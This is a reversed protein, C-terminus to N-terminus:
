LGLAHLLLHAFQVPKRGTISHGVDITLFRGEALYDAVSRLRAQDVHSSSGGGIVLTRCRIQHLRSWWDPDPTRISQRLCIVDWDFSTPETPRIPAGVDVVVTDPPPPADEVVLRQVRDRWCGALYLAVHGGLSHGVLDVTQVGLGDLVGIVDNVILEFSYSGPWDSKGHGRLDIAISERGAGTLESCVADWTASDEALAHLLVVPVDVAGVGVPVSRRYAMRIGAVEIYAVGTLM